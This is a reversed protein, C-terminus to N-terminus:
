STPEQKGKQQCRSSKNRVFSPLVLETDQVPDRCADLIAPKSVSSKQSEYSARCGWMIAELFSCGLVNAEPFSLANKSELVVSPLGSLDISLVYSLVFYFCDFFHTPVPVALGRGADTAISASVLCFAVIM